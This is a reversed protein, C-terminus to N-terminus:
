SRQRIDKRQRFRKLLIRAFVILCIVFCSDGLRHAEAAHAGACLLDLTFLTAVEALSFHPAGTLRPGATGLFGFLFSAMMGEIMLRARTPSIQIHSRLASIIFCGSRYGRLVM